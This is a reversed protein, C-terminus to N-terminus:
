LEGNQPTKKKCYVYCICCGYPLVYIPFFVIMSIIVSIKYGISVDKQQNGVFERNQTSPLNQLNEFNDM